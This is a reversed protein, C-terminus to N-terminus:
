SRRAAAARRWRDLEMCGRSGCTGAQASARWSSRAAAQPPGLRGSAACADPRRSCTPHAAAGRPVRPARFSGRQCAARQGCPVRCSAADSGRHTGGPHRSRLLLLGGSAHPAGPRRSGIRALEAPGHACVHSCASSLAPASATRGRSGCQQRDAARAARRAARSGVPGQQDGRMPPDGPPFQGLRSVSGPLEEAPRRRARLVVSQTAAGRRNLGAGVGDGVLLRSAGAGPGTPAQRLAQGFIPRSAGPRGGGGAECLRRCHRRSSHSGLRRARGVVAARRGGGCV